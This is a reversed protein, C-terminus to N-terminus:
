NTMKMLNAPTILSHGISQIIGNNNKLSIAGDVSATLSIKTLHQKLVKAQIKSLYTVNQRRHFLHFVQRQFFADFHDTNFAAMM